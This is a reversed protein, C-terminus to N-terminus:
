KKKRKENKEGRAASFKNQTVYKNKYLLDKKHVTHIFECRHFSARLFMFTCVNSCTHLACLHSYQTEM